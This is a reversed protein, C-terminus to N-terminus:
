IPSVRLIYLVGNVIGWDLAVAHGLAIELKKAARYLQQIQDTDLYDDEENSELSVTGDKKNVLIMGVEDEDDIISSSAWLKAEILIEDSADTYPNESFVRGCFEGDLYEQIIIASSEYSFKSNQQISIVADILSDRDVQILADNEVRDFLTSARVIVKDLGLEDYKRLIANSLGYGVFKGIPVVFGRAIRFGALKTKALRAGLQGVIRTDTSDDLSLINSM